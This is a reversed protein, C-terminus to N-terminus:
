GALRVNLAIVLVGLVLLLGIEWLWRPDRRRAPASGHLADWLFFVLTLLAPGLLRPVALVRLGGAAIAVVIGYTLASLAADRVTTVRLAAVRYGLLTAVVADAVVLLLLEAGVLAAGGQGLGSQGPEVLGGPVTAAVGSFAAFAVIVVWALVRTRDDEDPPSSLTELRAELALTRDIVIFVLVLAVITLLGLPLLRIAGVSASAATAPLLLSEIPVGRPEGEGLVELAGIGVGVLILIAAVWLWPGDAFRTLGVAATALLALDRRGARRPDM